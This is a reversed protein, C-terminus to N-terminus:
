KRTTLLLLQFLSSNHHDPVVAVVTSCKREDFGMPEDSELHVRINFIMM